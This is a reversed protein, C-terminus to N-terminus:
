RKNIIITLFTENNLSDILADKYYVKLKEFMSGCETYVSKFETKITDIEFDNYRIIFYRRVSHDFSELDTHYDYIPGFNVEWYNVATQNPVGRKGNLLTLQINNQNFMKLSDINYNPLPFLEPYLYKGTTSDKFIIQISSANVNLPFDYDCPGKKKCTIFVLSFLITILLLIKIKPKM